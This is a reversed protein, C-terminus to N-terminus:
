ARQGRAGAEWEAETPLRGGRWACLLEAGHWTLGGVAAEVTKDCAEPYVGWQWQGDSNLGVQGNM